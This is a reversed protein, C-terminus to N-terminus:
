LSGHRSDTWLTVVTASSGGDGSVFNRDGSRYAGGTHLEVAGGGVLTPVAAAPSFMSQVWAAIAAVRDPGDPRAARSM